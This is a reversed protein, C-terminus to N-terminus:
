KRTDSRRGARDVRVDGLWSNMVPHTIGQFLAMIRADRIADETAPEEKSYGNRVGEDDITIQKEGNAKTVAPATVAM